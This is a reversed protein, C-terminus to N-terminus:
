KKKVCRPDTEGPACVCTQYPTGAVVVTWCFPNVRTKSVSLNLIPEFTTAKILATCFGAEHLRYVTEKNNLDLQGCTKEDCLRCTSVQNGDRDLVTVRGDNQIAIVVAADKPVSGGQQATACGSAGLVAIASGIV